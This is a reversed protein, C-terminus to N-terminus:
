HYRTFLINPQLSTTIYNGTPEFKRSENDFYFVSTLNEPVAESDSLFSNLVACLERVKGLRKKQEPTDASKRYSSKIRELEEPIVVIKNEIVQYCSWVLGFPRNEVEPCNDLQEAIAYLVSLDKAPVNDITVTMDPHNEVMRKYLKTTVMERIARQVIAESGFKGTGEFITKLEEFTLNSSTVAQFEDVFKNLHVLGYNINKDVDRIGARNCFFIEPEQSAVQAVSNFITESIKQTGLKQAAKRLNQEDTKSAKLDIRAFKKKTNTEM